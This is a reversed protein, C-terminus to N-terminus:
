GYGRGEYAVLPAGPSDSYVPPEFTADADRRQLPFPIIVLHRDIISSPKESKRRTELFSAVAEGGALLFQAIALLWLAHWKIWPDFTLAYAPWAGFLFIAVIWRDWPTLDTVLCRMQEGLSSYLKAGCRKITKAYIVSIVFIDAMFSYKLPLSDGTIQYVLEVSLWAIVMALATLNRFAAPIGVGAVVVYMVLAQWAM